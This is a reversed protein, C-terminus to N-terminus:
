VTNTSNRKINSYAEWSSKFWQKRFLFVLIIYLKAGVVTTSWLKACSTFYSSIKVKVKVLNPHFSVVQWILMQFQCKTQHLILNIFGKSTAIQPAELEASICSKMRSNFHQILAWNLPFWRTRLWWCRKSGYWPLGPLSMMYRKFLKVPERLHMLRFQKWIHWYTLTFSFQWGTM